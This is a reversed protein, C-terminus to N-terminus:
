PVWVVTAQRARDAAVRWSWHDASCGTCLDVDTVLEAGAQELAIRVAAPLDLAAHGHRDIARVENGLRSAILELDDPGFAYCDPHVCPGLAAFVRDAGLQRMAAVTEEIVGAQLGRWGAHAVGIVGENSSLAIPACDATLVALAVGPAASVAADAREGAGGGPREVRVVRTGHVQRLWTWPRDVVARRRAAVAPDTGTANSMDGEARGTFRVLAAPQQAAPTDAGGLRLASV